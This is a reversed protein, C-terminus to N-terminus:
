DGSEIKTSGSGVVRGATIQSGFRSPATGFVSHTPPKSSKLTYTASATASWLYGTAAALVNITEPLASLTIPSTYETSDVTPASGDTTYFMEFGGLASNVNLLTVSTSPSVAGAAPSFTSTAVAPNNAAQGTSFNSVQFQTLDSNSLEAALATQGSAYTSNSVSLVSVGNQLVTLTTGIVVATWVDDINLTLGTASGLVTTGSVSNSSRLLAVGASSAGWGTGNNRILLNYSNSFFSDTESTARILIFGLALNAGVGLNALTASAYQDDPLTINFYEIGQESSTVECLNSAVQLVDDSYFGIAPVWPPNPLPSVDAYGFSDSGLPNLYIAM